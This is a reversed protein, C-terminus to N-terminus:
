FVFGTERAFGPLAQAGADFAARMDFTKGARQWVQASGLGGQGVVAVLRGGEVLQDLLAQPVKQV